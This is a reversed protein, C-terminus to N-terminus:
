HADLDGGNLQNSSVEDAEIPRVDLIKIQSSAWVHRRYM